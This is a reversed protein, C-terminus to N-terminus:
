RSIGIMPVKNISQKNLLGKMFHEIGRFIFVYLAGERTKILQNM